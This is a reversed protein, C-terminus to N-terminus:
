HVRSSLAPLNLLTTSQVQPDIFSICLPHCNFVCLLSLVDREVFGACSELRNKSRKAEKMFYAASPIRRIAPKPGLSHTFRSQTQSVPPQHRHPPVLPLRTTCTSYIAYTPHEAGSGNTTMSRATTSSSPHTSARSTSNLQTSPPAESCNRKDTM